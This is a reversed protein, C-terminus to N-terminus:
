IMPWVLVRHTYTNYALRDLDHILSPTVWANRWRSFTLICSWCLLKFSMWIDAISWIVSAVVIIVVTQWLQLVLELFNRYNETLSKLNSAQDERQWFEIIILYHTTTTYPQSGICLATRDTFLGNTVTQSQTM